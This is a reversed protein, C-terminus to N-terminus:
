FLHFYYLHKYDLRYAQAQTYEFIETIELHVQFLSESM